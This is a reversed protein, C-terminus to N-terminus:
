LCKNINFIRTEQKIRRLGLNCSDQCSACNKRLAHNTNQHWECHRPTSKRSNWLMNCLFNTKQFDRTITLLSNNIFALAIGLHPIQINPVDASATLVRTHRIYQICILIVKKSLTWNWTIGNVYWYSKMQFIWIKKEWVCM